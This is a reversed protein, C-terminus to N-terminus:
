NAKLKDDFELNLEVIDKFSNVSVAEGKQTALILGIRVINKIQRGNLEHQSLVDCDERTLGYQNTLNFWIKSRSEPSLESYHLALSIRSYFAEDLNKARNSTMFLVGQYYELLRLFVGVMANRDVDLDSRAELFIDAEDLLLVANWAQATELIRKLNSELESVDTGLEGIGAMYLPRQLSESVAEASLTKGVGPPGALLFILGAGKGDILDTSLNSEAEVLTRIMNKTKPELILKDWSDTRFQIETVEDLDIEGWVKSVFSFGYVVPPTAILVEDTPELTTEQDEYSESNQRHGPVVGGYWYNYNPDNKRFSLCDVMIRGQSRFEHDGFWNRRVINGSYQAYYPKASVKYYKKGRELLTQRTEDTLFNFGLESLLKKGSYQAVNHSVFGEIFERGNWINQVVRVQYYTAGSWTRREEVKLVKGAVVKGQHKVQIVKDKLDSIQSWSISGNKMDEEAAHAERAVEEQFVELLQEYAELLEPSEFEDKNVERLNDESLYRSLWKVSVKANLNNRENTRKAREQARKFEEESDFDVLELENPDENVYRGLGSVSLPGHYLWERLEPNPIHIMNGGKKSKEVVTLAPTNLELEITPNMKPEKKPRHAVKFKQLLTELQQRNESDLYM